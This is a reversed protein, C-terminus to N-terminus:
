KLKKDALDKRLRLVEARTTREDSAVRDVTFKLTELQAPVFCFPAISIQFGEASYM